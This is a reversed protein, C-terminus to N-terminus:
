RKVTGPCIEGLREYVQWWAAEHDAPSSQGRDRRDDAQCLMVVLSKLEAFLAAVGEDAYGAIRVVIL